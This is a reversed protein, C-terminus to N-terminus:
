IRSWYFTLLLRALFDGYKTALGVLIRSTHFSWFFERLRQFFSRIATLM